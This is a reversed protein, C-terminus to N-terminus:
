VNMKIEYIVIFNWNHNIIRCGGFRYYLIHECTKIFHHSGRKLGDNGKWTAFVLPVSELPIMSLRFWNDGAALESQPHVQRRWKAQERTSRGAAVSSGACSVPDRLRRQCTFTSVRLWLGWFVNVRSILQMGDLWPKGNEDSPARSGDHSPELPSYLLCPFLQM